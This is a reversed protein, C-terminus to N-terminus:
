NVNFLQSLFKSRKEQSIDYEELLKVYEEPDVINKRCQDLMEKTKYQPYKDLLQSICSDQIYSFSGYLGDLIDLKVHLCHATEFIWSLINSFGSYMSVRFIWSVFLDITLIDDALDITEWWAQLVYDIDTM